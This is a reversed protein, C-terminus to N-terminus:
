LRLRGSQWDKIIHLLTREEDVLGGKRLFGKAKGIEEIIQDEDFDELVKIKYFDELAGQDKSLFIRLIELVLRYRKRIKEPNKAGLIGLKIENDEFPIVGPSDLIKIKSANVFQIGRTTGAVGSVKAKARRSLANIIASKGVNPYGVIGVAFNTNKYKKALIQLRKRLGSIGDGDKGSVFVWDKNEKKLKALYGKSILDIKNIVYIFDKKHYKLMRNVEVNDSLEIMRADLVILVVSADKIVKKVVPWFGMNPNM